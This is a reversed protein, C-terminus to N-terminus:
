MKDFFDKIMDGSVHVYINSTTSSNVHGLVKSVVKDSAGARIARSAFTHRLAHFKHIEIGAKIQVRKFFEQITRPDIPKTERNSLVFDEEICERCYIQKKQQKLKILENLLEDKLPVIRKSNETKPEHLVM